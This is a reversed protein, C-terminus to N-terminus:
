DARINREKIIAGFRVSDAMAREHFAEPTGPAAEGGLQAIREQVAPMALVKNIEANLKAIVPQPTGAPAYFGFM